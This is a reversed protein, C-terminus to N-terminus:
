FCLKMMQSVSKFLHQKRFGMQMNCTSTTQILLIATQIYNIHIFYIFLINNLSFFCLKSVTGINIKM